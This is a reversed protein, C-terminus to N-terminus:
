EIQFVSYRAFTDIKSNAMQRGRKVEEGRV